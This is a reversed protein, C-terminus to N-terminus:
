PRHAFLSERYRGLLRNKLTKLRSRVSNQPLTAVPIGAAALAAFGKRLAGVYEEYLRPAHPGVDYGTWLVARDPALLRFSHFHYFAPYRFGDRLFSRVNWPALTERTRELVHVEQAFRDPWDDLYKQDGYKGDENRAYCWELCRQQWWGLVKRGGETNRCAIFQVCFRGVKATLDYESSYAHDTILVDRGSAEFEELLPAPDSFFFLDADLYTVRAVAPERAFVASFTFPTATWCYEGKSRGSKVALLEPTEFGRLPILDVDPLDLRRLQNEVKEDMCLIWLRFPAAHRALSAHLALGAPLFNADFLTVYHEIPRPSPM